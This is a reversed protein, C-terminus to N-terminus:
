AQDGNLHKVFFEGDIWPLDWNAGDFRVVFVNPRTRLRAQADLDYEVMLFYNWIPESVILFNPNAEQSESVYEESSVAFRLHLLSYELSQSLFQGLASSESGLVMVIMPEALRKGYKM